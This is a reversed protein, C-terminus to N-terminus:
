RDTKRAGPMLFALENRFHNFLASLQGVQHSITQFESETKKYDAELKGEKQAIGSVTRELEDIGAKLASAMGEYEYVRELKRDLNDLRNEIFSLRALREENKELRRLAASSSEGAAMANRLAEGCATDMGSLRRSVGEHLRAEMDRLRQELGALEAAPMGGGTSSLADAKEVASLRLALAAMEARFLKLSREPVSGGEKLSRLEEETAKKLEGAAAALEACRGEAAAAREEAKKLRTELERPVNREEKRLPEPTSPQTGAAAPPPAGAAAGSPVAGADRGASVAPGHPKIVSFLSDKRGAEGDVGFFHTKDM